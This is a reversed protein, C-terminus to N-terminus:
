YRDPYAVKLDIMKIYKHVTKLYQFNMVFETSGAFMEAVNQFIMRSMLSGDENKKKM